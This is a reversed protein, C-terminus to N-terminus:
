FGPCSNVELSRAWRDSLPSTRKARLLGPSRVPITVPSRIELSLAAKALGRAQLPFRAARGAKLATYPEACFEGSRRPQKRPFAALRCRCPRLWVWPAACVWRWGFQWLFQELTRQMMMLMMIVLERNAGFQWMELTHFNYIFCYKSLPNQPITLGDSPACLPLKKLLRIGKIEWNFYHLRELLKPYANLLVTRSWPLLGTM